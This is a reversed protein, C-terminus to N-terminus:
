YVIFQATNTILHDHGKNSTIDRYKGQALSFFFCSFAKILVAM